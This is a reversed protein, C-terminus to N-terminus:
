AGRPDSAFGADIAYAMLSEQLQRRARYLRSRVTGIPIGLMEAIEQYTFGEVDGLVVVQRFAPDLDDIARGIAPALDLRTYMDDLGASRAREHLQSAALSELEDGDVADTHRDRHRQEFFTHRCIAALWRRADAGPLFTHWSRYARLFVEQVLDDADPQNGTLVRAM